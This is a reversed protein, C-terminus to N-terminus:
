AMRHQKSIQQDSMAQHYIAMLQTYNHQPTYKELYTKRANRGMRHMEEPHSDAWAIKEALDISSGPDFLMGTRGDEILEEMVGLRSAIVPLGCAFAEVLVLGFTEYWISPMVLYSSHQMHEMIEARTQAGLSRLRGHMQIHAREPGEGIVNVIKGPLRTLAGFLVDAGKEQSLRGVFLGDARPVDIPVPSDVFNPKISIRDPPLGGEVFKDRCFRNLAIYRTVKHQYTGLVRHLTLMGALVASQATSDRYCRRVVGRWPLKGLCDECTRKDRLFMAQPCLLRFNHLTQVVPLDKKAVAWFLSPSILPFTNHVHILDPNFAAICKGLDDTTRRSWLTGLAVGVKPMNEITENHRGYIQVEHGNQSLLAAEREAVVEEGGRRQYSNHVILVKPFISM